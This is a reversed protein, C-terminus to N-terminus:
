YRRYFRNTSLSKFSPLKVDTEELDPAVASAQPQAQPEKKSMTSSTDEVKEKDPPPQQQQRKKKKMDLLQTLTDNIRDLKTTDSHSGVVSAPQDKKGAPPTVEATKAAKKKAERNSQVVERAKM